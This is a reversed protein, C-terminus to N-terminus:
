LKSDIVPRIACTRLRFNSHGGNAANFHDLPFNWDRRSILGRDALRKFRRPDLEDIFIAFTFADTKPFWWSCGLSLPSSLATRDLEDVLVTGPRVSGLAATLSSIATTGGQENQDHENQDHM